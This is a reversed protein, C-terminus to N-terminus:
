KYEQKYYKDNSEYVKLVITEDVSMDDSKFDDM